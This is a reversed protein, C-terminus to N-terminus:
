SFQPKIQAIWADIRAETQDEQNDNDLALGVFKGDVVADSSEFNYGDTSVEGVLTAGADKLNQALKGMGGCYTDSYSESDGMGFVVVVKGSLSLGSFDFGDWDDQLDGSGWTSTGCILKDYSNIKDANIDAINLVDSIGLKDAIINAASETNGMASGYIVAVAM